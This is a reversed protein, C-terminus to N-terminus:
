ACVSRYVPSSSRGTSTGAIYDFYDTLVFDDGRGLKKQLQREIEALIELTIVGGFAVVTSHSFNGRAARIWNTM